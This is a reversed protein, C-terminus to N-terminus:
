FKKKKKTVVSRSGKGGLMGKGQKLSTGFKNPLVM